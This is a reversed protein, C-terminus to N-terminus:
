RCLVSCTASPEPETSDCDDVFIGEGAEAHQDFSVFSLNMALDLVNPKRVDWAKYTTKGELAKGLYMIYVLLPRHPPLYLIRCYFGFPSKKGLVWRDM